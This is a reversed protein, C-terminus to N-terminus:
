KLNQAIVHFEDGDLVVYEEDGKINSIKSCLEMGDRKARAM